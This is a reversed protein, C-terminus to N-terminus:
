FICCYEQHAFPLHSSEERKEVRVRGDGDGVVRGMGSLGAFANNSGDKFVTNAMTVTYQVSDLLDSTPNITVAASSITVLGDGVSITTASGM